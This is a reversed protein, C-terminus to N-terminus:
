TEYSCLIVLKKSIGVQSMTKGKTKKTKKHFM